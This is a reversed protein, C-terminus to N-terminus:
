QSVVCDCTIPISSCMHNSSADHMAQDECMSEAESLSVNMYQYSTSWLVQGNLSCSAGCGVYKNKDSGGCSGLAVWALLSALAWRRWMRRSM